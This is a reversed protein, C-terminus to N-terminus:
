FKVLYATLYMIALGSFFGALNIWSVLPTGEREASSRLLGVVEVIVQWIAGVGIGLFITALLPSFAFGGIWSGLIAPSGAVLIL